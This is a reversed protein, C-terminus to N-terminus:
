KVVALEAGSEVSQGAEVAVSHVVGDRPSRIENEMKMAEIVLLPKGAEIADGVAVLVELVRGAMMSRVVSSGDGKGSPSVSAPDEMAVRYSRGALAVDLADGMSRVVVEYSFNGVLLSYVGPHPETVQVERTEEGLCVRYSGDDNRLVELDIAEGDLTARLNM